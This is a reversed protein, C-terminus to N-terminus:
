IENSLKFNINFESTRRSAYSHTRENHRPSEFLQYSVLAKAGAGMSTIGITRFVEQHLADFIHTKGDVKYSHNYYFDTIKDLDDKFFSPFYSVYRGGARPHNGISSKDAYILNMLGDNTGAILLSHHM